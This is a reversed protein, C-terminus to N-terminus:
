VTPPTWSDATVVIDLTETPLISTIPSTSHISGPTHVRWRRQQSGCRMDLKQPLYAPRKLHSGCRCRGQGGDCSCILEFSLDRGLMRTPCPCVAQDLHVVHVEAPASLLDM